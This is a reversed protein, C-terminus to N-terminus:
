GRRGTIPCSCIVHICLNRVMVVNMFFTRTLISNNAVYVLLCWGIVTVSFWRFGIVKITALARTLQARERELFLKGDTIERLCLILENRNTREVENQVPVPTYWMTTTTTVTTAATVGASTSSVSSGICWPLATTVLARIASMKQSRKTALTAITSRLTAGDRVDYCAQIAASCIRGLNVHDNGIRCRKELAFLIPLVNSLVAVAPDTNNNNNTSSSGTSSEYDELLSACQAIALDTENTFDIKEELQGGSATGSNGETAM